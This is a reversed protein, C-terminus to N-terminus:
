KENKSMKSSCIWSPGVWENLSRKSIEISSKSQKHKLQTPPELHAHLGVSKNKHYFSVDKFHLYRSLCIVM